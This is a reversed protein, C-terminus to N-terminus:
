QDLKWVTSNFVRQVKIWTGPIHRVFADEQEFDHLVAYIPRGAPRLDMCASRFQEPRLWDWRVLKFDTYYFLTRCQWSWPSLHSITKCGLRRRRIRSKTEALEAHM